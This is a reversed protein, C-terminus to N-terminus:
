FSFSSFGFDSNGKKNRLHYYHIAYRLADMADDYLKVPQDLINDGSSKWKYNRMEKILNISSKDLILKYSKVSNIGETVEKRAPKANYGIRRLDEIVDPRASDVM